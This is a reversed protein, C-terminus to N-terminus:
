ITYTGDFYPNPQVWSVILTTPNFTIWNTDSVLTPKSTINM